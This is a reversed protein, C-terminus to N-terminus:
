GGVRPPRNDGPRPLDLGLERLLQRAANAANREIAVEPREKPQRFRDYFVMGRADIEDRADAARSMQVAALELIRKHHDELDYEREVSEVWERIEPRLGKPPAAPPPPGADPPPVLAMNPAKKM